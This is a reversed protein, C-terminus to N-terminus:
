SKKQERMTKWRMFYCCFPFLVTSIAIWVFLVGFNLGIKSHVDFVVTRSAEVINHLPWAYGWRFFGPSTDLSYFSTAVNSIVWFILWLATWPQGVIMAMNECPLGLSAMGVFNIMWYVPFSGKGYANADDAVVTHPASQKSFHIQFALSVLSYALSMLFYAILTSLWRWIILQNFNLAPHGPQMFKMHIPMFFGFSFFAIIILYILGITVAPTTVPPVFPRLDFTSFGIAPSLAQPAAELNTRPISTNSLVMKTWMGGFSSTIQTQLMTLQPLIYNYYSDEDRATVYVMQMAGLPDYSSNGQEVAQRLMQTANSNVIIAAYAAQEYIADRVRMPDHNYQAPPLSIYGLHPMKDAKVIGETMETVM